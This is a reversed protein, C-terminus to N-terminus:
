RAVFPALPGSSPAHQIWLTAGRDVLLQEIREMSRRTEDRDTNFSPPHRHERNELSHYLDGSLVIPGTEPLDLYLCQHGPTHGPAFLIEVSGDGFVDHDGSLLVTEADEMGELLSPWVSDNDLDESFIWDHEVQQVLWTSGAFDNAQGVHDFHAHSFAVYDVDSVGLEALQDVLPAAGEVSTRGLTGIWLAWAMANAKFGTPLGADWLLTGKPHVVLYCRDVMDLREPRDPVGELFPEADMGDLVGCDLVHLRLGEGARSGSPAALLLALVISTTLARSM